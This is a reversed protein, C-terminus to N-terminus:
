NEQEQLPNIPLSLSKSQDLIRKVRQYLSNVSDAFACGQSGILNTPEHSLDPQGSYTYSGWM